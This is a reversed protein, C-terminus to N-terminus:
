KFLEMIAGIYDPESSTVIFNRHAYSIKVREAKAGKLVTLLNRPLFYCENFSFTKNSVSVLEEAKVNDSSDDFKLKIVDKDTGVFQVDPPMASENVMNVMECFNIIPLTDIEFSDASKFNKLVMAVQESCKTEPKIFGYLAGLTEFYDFGNVSSHNLQKFGSIESIVEPELSIEPLKEKFGQFYTVEGRTGIVYWKGELLKIHVFTRWERLVKENTTMTHGKAISLSKLVDTTLEIKEATENLEITPYLDKTLQCSITREGDDLKVTLGNPIIKIEDTRCFKTFAFLPKTEIMLTQEKKFEAEVDYVVFRHGNHKTITSGNKKCELRVYAYIPLLKTDPVGSSADIFRKLSETPITIM